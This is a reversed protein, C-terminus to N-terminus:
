VSTARTAKWADPATAHKTQRRRSFPSTRSALERPSRSEPNTSLALGSASAALEAALSSSDAVVARARLCATEDEVRAVAVTAGLAEAAAAAIGELTQSLTAGEALARAAASLVSLQAASGGETEAAGERVAM